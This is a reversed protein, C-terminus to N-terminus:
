QKQSQQTASENIQHRKYLKQVRELSFFLLTGKDGVRVVTTQTPDIVLALKLPDFTNLDFREATYPEGAELLSLESIDLSEQGEKVGSQYIWGNSKWFSLFAEDGYSHVSQASVFPATVFFLAVWLNSLIRQM